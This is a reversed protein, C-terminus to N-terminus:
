RAYPIGCEYAESSKQMIRVRRSIANSLPSSSVWSLCNRDASVAVLLTFNM